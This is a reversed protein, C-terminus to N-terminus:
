PARRLARYGASRITVRPNGAVGSALLLVTDNTSMDGDVSIANFTGAVADRWRAGRPAATSRARRHVVFVLLTALDPAIMGAGKGLAAITVARRGLRIRRVATKPFADTTTIAQAAAPFGDAALAAHAARM